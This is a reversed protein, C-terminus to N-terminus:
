DRSSIRFDAHWLQLESSKERIQNWSEPTNTIVHITAKGDSDFESAEWKILQGTSKLYSKFEEWEANVPPTADEKLRQVKLNKHYAM